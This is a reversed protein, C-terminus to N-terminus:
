KPWTVGRKGSKLGDWNSEKQSFNSDKRRKEGEDTIGNQNKYFKQREIPYDNGRSTIEEARM